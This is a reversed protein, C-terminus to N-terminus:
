VGELVPVPISALASGLVDEPAHKNMWYEPQLLLRHVLAPAALEKVDDPLVYQRGHIAAWARALKMLALSGRPSAGVAVRRDQRTHQVIEVMYREVDPDVHVDEISERARM